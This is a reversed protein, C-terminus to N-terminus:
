ALDEVLKLIRGTDCLEFCERCLACQDSAGPVLAIDRNVGRGVFGVANRKSVEECYRVCRGCLTCTAEVDEPRQFRSRSIGYRKAMTLHPGRPSIAVLMEALMKRIKEVEDTTTQVVLGDEVLYCCSAVLKKRGNKEVEVMCLRCAGHPKLRQDHCLSPIPIGAKRAAEIVTTGEQARVEQGDISLTVEKMWMVETDCISM